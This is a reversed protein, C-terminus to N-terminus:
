TAEPHDFFAEIGDLTADFYEGLVVTNHRPNILMFDGSNQSHPVYKWERSKGVAYGYRRALRRVRCEQNKETRQQM